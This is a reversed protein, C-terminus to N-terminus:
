RYGAKISGWTARRAPVIQCPDIPECTTGDGQYTGGANVCDAESTIRCDGQGSPCCAGLPLDGCQVTDCATGYGQWAGGLSDCEAATSFICRGDALCCAAESPPCPNPSCFIDPGLWRGGLQSCVSEAVFECHGDTFCCAGPREVEPCQNEGPAGWRMTGFRTIDYVLPPNSDDAFQALHSGHPYNGTRLFGDVVGSAAFWYVKFFTGYVANQYAVATGTGSAGPWTEDPIELITGPPGCPGWDSFYDAPLNHYIGFQYATVAPYADDPFALLIWIVSEADDPPKDTRPNLEACSGPTQSACYDWGASYTVQDDTHVVLAGDDCRRCAGAPVASLALVVLVLIWPRM